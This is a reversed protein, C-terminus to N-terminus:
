SMEQSPNGHTLDLLHTLVGRVQDDTLDISDGDANVGCLLVPGHFDQWTIGYRRALLSAAPNVPQTFLGEDDIWMDLHQTLSVCDVLQCDLHERMLTLHDAGANLNVEVVNGDPHIVLAAGM